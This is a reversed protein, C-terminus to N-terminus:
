FCFSLFLKVCSSWKGKFLFARIKFPMVPINILDRLNPFYRSSAFLFVKQIDERIFRMWDLCKELLLDGFKFFTFRQWSYLLAPKSTGTEFIHDFNTGFHFWVWCQSPWSHHMQLYSYTVTSHGVKSELKTWNSKNITLSCACCGSLWTAWLSAKNKM